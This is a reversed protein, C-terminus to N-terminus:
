NNEKMYIIKGDRIAQEWTKRPAAKRKKDKVKRTIKMGAFILLALSVLSGVIWLLIRLM